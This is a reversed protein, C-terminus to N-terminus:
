EIFYRCRRVFSFRCREVFITTLLVPRQVHGSSLLGAPRIPWHFRYLLHPATVALSPLHENAQPASPFPISPLLLRLSRRKGLFGVQKSSKKVREWRRQAKRKLKFPQEFKRKGKKEGGREYISCLDRRTSEEATAKTEDYEGSAAIAVDTGIAVDDRTDGVCCSWCRGNEEVGVMM